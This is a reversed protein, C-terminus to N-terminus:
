RVFRCRILQIVFNLKTDFREYIFNEKTEKNPWDQRYHLILSVWPSLSALKLM